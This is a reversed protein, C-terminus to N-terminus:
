WHAGLEFYFRISEDSFAIQTLAIMSKPTWVRIGFGASYKWNKFFGDGTIKEYVRGREYFLFADTQDFIPYRYELTALALDNNIFRRPNYGRLSGSGGLNSILYIPAARNDDIDADFRQLYFRLAFIREWWINIYQHLDISYKSFHNDKSRGVGFYRIYEAKIINGRSPQGTNNRSDFSFTAGYTIYRSNDLRGNELAFDPDSLITDLRGEYEPHRGDYLNTIQYGALIGISANNFLQLPIDIRYETNEFTYSAEKDELSNMGVGYFSERPRRKYRFYLRLGLKSGSGITNYQFQYSQYDFISYYWKVKAFDGAIINNSRRLGFGFKLGATHNYGVIPIYNKVDQYMGFFRKYESVPPNSSITYSVFELTRVPLKLIEGPIDAMIEGFSKKLKQVERVRTTDIATPQGTSLAPLLFVMVAVLVAKHIPRIMNM